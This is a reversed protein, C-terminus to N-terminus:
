SECYPVSLRFGGQLQKEITAMCGKRVKEVEGAYKELDAYHKEVTDHTEKDLVEVEKWAEMVIKDQKAIDELLM